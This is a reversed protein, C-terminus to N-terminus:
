TKYHQVVTLVEQLRIQARDLQAQFLDRHSDLANSGPIL